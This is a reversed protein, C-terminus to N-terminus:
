QVLAILLNAKNSRKFHKYESVLIKDFYIGDEASFIILSANEYLSFTYLYLLRLHWSNKQWHTVYFHKQCKRWRIHYQKSLQKAQKTGTNLYQQPPLRLRQATTLAPPKAGQLRIWGVMEKPTGTGPWPWQPKRLKGTTSQNQRNIYNHTKVKGKYSQESNPLKTTAKIQLKQSSPM